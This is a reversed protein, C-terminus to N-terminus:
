AIELLSDMTGFANPRRGPQFPDLQWEGDVIFKYRYAGPTVPIVKQWLGLDKQREILSEPIWNNFDGAIEVTRANPTVAQFLVGGTVRRPGYHDEYVQNWGLKQPPLLRDWERKLYEMALHYYDRFAPSGPAYRVISQGAGAAEKFLVSEHIIAKFLNEQFHSRVEEYVEKAFRTRSDFITLLARMAVPRTRRHNIRQLTEFMKALGHLSFFSPEIPILIEDAAELANYTLVGLNPPCDLIVYDFNHGEQEMQKLALKLRQEKNEVRALDEELNFLVEYSSILSLNPEVPQFLRSFDLKQDFSPNLLDYTSPSNHSPKIGLGCTSHGQPDLDILLIKKDLFALSAALNISTTTKGCGGKQNAVAIIRM